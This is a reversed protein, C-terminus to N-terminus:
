KPCPFARSLALYSLVGAREHLREPNESAFKLFIKVFQVLAMHEPPCVDIFHKKTPADIMYAYDFLASFYGICEGIDTNNGPLSIKNDAQPVASADFKNCARLLENGDMAEAPHYALVALLTAARVATV